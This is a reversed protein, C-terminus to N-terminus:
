REDTPGSSTEGIEVWRPEGDVVVLQYVKFGGDMIMPKRDEIAAMIERRVRARLEETVRGKRLFLMLPPNVGTVEISRDDDM